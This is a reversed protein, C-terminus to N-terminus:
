HHVGSNGLLPDGGTPLEVLRHHHLLLDRPPGCPPHPPAETAPHHAISTVVASASPSRLIHTVVQSDPKHVDGPPWTVVPLLLHPVM